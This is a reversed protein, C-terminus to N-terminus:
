AAAAVAIRPEAISNLWGAVESFDTSLEVEKEQGNRSDSFYAHVCNPARVWLEIDGARTHWEIQLDGDSGPVVQPPTMWPRCISRLMEVAFSANVFSVPFGGYGDWGEDLRILDQLRNNVADEWASTRTTAVPPRSGAITTLDRLYESLYSRSNSTKM